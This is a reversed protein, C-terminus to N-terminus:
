KKVISNNSRAIVAPFLARAQTVEAKSWSFPEYFETAPNADLDALVTQVKKLDGWARSMLNIPHTKKLNPAFAVDLPNVDQEAPGLGDAQIEDAVHKFAAADRFCEVALQRPNIGSHSSRGKFLELAVVTLSLTDAINKPNSM